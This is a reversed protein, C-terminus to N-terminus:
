HIEFSDRVTLFLSLMVRGRDIETTRSYANADTDSM